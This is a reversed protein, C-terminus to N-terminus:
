DCNFLKKLRNIHSNIHFDPSLYTKAILANYKERSNNEIIYEYIQNIDKYIFANLNNVVGTDKIHQTTLVPIGFNLAELIANPCGEGKISNLIFYDAKEFELIKDKDFVSDKFIVCVGKKEALRKLNYEEPGTGCITLSIEKHESIFEIIEHIKKRKILRSITLLRTRPKNNEATKKAIDSVVPNFLVHTNKIINISKLYKEMIYSVCIFGTKFFSIIKLILLLVGSKIKAYLSNKLSDQSFERHYEGGIRLFVKKNLLRFIIISLFTDQPSSIAFIVSDKKIYKFSFYLFQFPRIFKIGKFQIHRFPFKEKNIHNYNIYSSILTIRFHESLYPLINKIYTAPGGIQPPFTPALIILQKKQRKNM